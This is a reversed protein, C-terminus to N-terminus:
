GGRLTGSGSLPGRNSMLLAFPPIELFAGGRSADRNRHRGGIRCM